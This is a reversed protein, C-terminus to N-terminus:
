ICILRVHLMSFPRPRQGLSKTQKIFQTLTSHFDDKEVRQVKNIYKIIPPLWPFSLLSFSNGPAARKQREKVFFSELFGPADSTLYSFYPVAILNRKQTGCSDEHANNSAWSKCSTCALYSAESTSIAVDRWSDLFINIDIREKCDHFGKM